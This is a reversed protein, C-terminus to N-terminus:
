STLAASLATSATAHHFTFDHSQLRTPLARKSGLLEWAFEGLAAKM